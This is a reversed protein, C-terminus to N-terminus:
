NSAPGTGFGTQEHFRVWRYHELIRPWAEVDAAVRFCDHAPARVFHEDVITM